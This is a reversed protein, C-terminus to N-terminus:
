VSQPGTPRLGQWGSLANGRRRAEHYRPACGPHWGRSVSAHSPGSPAVPCRSAARRRRAVGLGDLMRRVLRPGAGVAPERLSTAIERPTGATGVVDQRMPDGAIRAKLTDQGQQILDAQKVATKNRGGGPTRLRSGAPDDPLQPLERRGDKVTHPDCALVKAISRIGGHGLTLAELAAFRRRDKESLSQSYPRWLQAIDPRYTKQFALAM